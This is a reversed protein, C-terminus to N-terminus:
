PYVTVAMIIILKIEEQLSIYGNLNCVPCVRQMIPIHHQDRWARRMPRKDTVAFCRVPTKHEPDGPLIHVAQHLRRHSIAIQHLINLCLSLINEVIVPDAKIFYLCLHKPEDLLCSSFTESLVRPDRQADAVQHQMQVTNYIFLLMFSIGPCLLGQVLIKCIIDPFMQIFFKGKVAKGPFEKYALIMNSM